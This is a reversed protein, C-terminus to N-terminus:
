TGGSLAPTARRELWIIFPLGGVLPTWFALARYSLVVLLAQAGPVGIRTLFPTMTAEVVGAGGPLMSANGLLHPISYAALMAGLQLQVRAAALLLVASAADCLASFLAVGALAGWTQRSMSSWASSLQHAREELQTTNAPRRRLRSWAHEAKELLLPVHAPNVLIWWLGAFPLLVLALGVFAGLWEKRSMFGETIVTLGSVVAILTVAGSFVLSPLWSALIAGPVTAGGKRTWRYLAAAYGAFGGGLLGLSSAGLLAQTARWRTIVGGNGACVVYLLLGRAAQSALQAAFAALVLPWHLGRLASLPNADVLRPLLFWTALGLLLLLIVPRRWGIATLPSAGQETNDSSAISESNAVFGRSSTV